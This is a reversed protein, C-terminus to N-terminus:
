SAPYSEPWFQVGIERLKNTGDLSFPLATSLHEDDGDEYMRLMELTSLQFLRVAALYGEHTTRLSPPPDLARIQTEAIRYRALGQNLRTRLEGRDIEQSRYFAAGLGVRAITQEIQTHISWLSDAYRQEDRALPRPTPVVTLSIAVGGSRVVDAVLMESKEAGLPWAGNLEVGRGTLRHQISDTVPDLGATALRDTTTSALGRGFWPLSEERVTSGLFGALGALVAAILALKSTSQQSRDSRVRRSRLRLGVGLAPASYPM